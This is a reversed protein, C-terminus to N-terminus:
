WSPADTGSLPTPRRHVRLHPKQIPKLLQVILQILEALQQFAEIRAFVQALSEVFRALSQFLNFLAVAFQLRRRVVLLKLQLARFLADAVGLRFEIGSADSVGAFQFGELVVDVGHAAGVVLHFQFQEAEPFLHLSLSLLNLFGFGVQALDLHHEFLVLLAILRLFCAKLRFDLLAFGHAGLEHRLYFGGEDLAVFGHSGSECAFGDGADFVFGAGCAAGFESGVEDVPEFFRM